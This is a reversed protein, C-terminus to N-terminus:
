RTDMLGVVGEVPSAQAAPLPIVVRTPQRLTLATPKNGLPTPITAGQIGQSFPRVPLRALGRCTAEVVLSWNGQADSQLFLPKVQVEGRQRHPYLVLSRGRLIVDAARGLEAEVEYRDVQIVGQEGVLRVELTPTPLLTSPVKLTHSGLGRVTQVPQWEGGEKRMLVALAGGQAYSVNLRVVASRIAFNGLSHRYIVYTDPAFVWRNTNFTATFEHLPARANSLEGEYQSIFRYIGNRIIEGEGLTLTGFRAHVVEVPILQPQDFLIEGRWHWHGVRVFTERTDAPTRFVYQVSQWDRQPIIDRNVTNAGVIACGGSGEGKLRVRFAYTRNPELQWRTNRWFHTDAGEGVTVLAMRDVRQVGQEAELVAIRQQRTHMPDSAVWESLPLPQIQALMVAGILRWACM